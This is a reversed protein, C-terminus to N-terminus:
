QRKPRQEARVEAIAADIDANVEERSIGRRLIDERVPALYEYLERLWPSGKPADTMQVPKIRLEGDVLTMRLMTEGDIGLEKRCAAPITIQGGRLPRVIKVMETSQSMSNGPDVFMM